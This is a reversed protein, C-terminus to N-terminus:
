QMGKVLKWLTQVWPSGSLLMTMTAGLTLVLGKLWGLIVARGIAAANAASTAAEVAVEAARRAAAAELRAAETGIDAQDFRLNLARHRGACEIEHKGAWLEQARIRAEHDATM